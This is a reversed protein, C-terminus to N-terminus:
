GQIAMLYWSYIWFQHISCSLIVLGNGCVGSAAVLPTRYSFKNKSIGCFECSFVQAQTKKKIFNCAVPLKIKWLVGRPSQKKFVSGMRSKLRKWLFCDNSLPISKLNRFLVCFHHLKQSLGWDTNRYKSPM